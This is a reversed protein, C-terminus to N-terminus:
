RAWRVTESERAERKARDRDRQAEAPDALILVRSGCGSRPCMLPTDFYRSFHGNECIFDLADAPNSIM